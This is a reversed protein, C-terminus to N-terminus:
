VAGIQGELLEIFLELKRFLEDYTIVSVGQLRERQLEFNTRLSESTLQKTAHGAIVLCRPESPTLSKQMSATVNRFNEMLKQRYNLVQVIAGSLQSSFPFADDRYKAGLLNTQPTKIEIIIMSQTSETAVLFDALKGGRNDIQKGGLYASSGIMVIPYSFVQSLVYAREKLAEHWFDEDDKSQNRRWYELANKVTALGM